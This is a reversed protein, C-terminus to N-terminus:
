EEWGFRWRPELYIKREPAASGSTTQGKELEYTARLLVDGKWHFRYALELEHKLDLRNVLTDLKVSYGLLVNQLVYKEFTVKSGKVLERWDTPLPIKEPTMEKGTEREMKVTDVLGTYGLINKILPTTLSTDLWRLIERRFLVMQEEQTLASTDVNAFVYKLAKEQTLLPYNKSYFKPQAEVLKSRDIVMVVTDPSMQKSEPDLVSTKTEAVGELYCINAIVEFIAKKIEFNHNLYSLNGRLTEIKGNVKIKDKDTTLKLFGNINTDVLENEYWVNDKARIELNFDLFNFIKNWTEDTEKDKPPYTFHTNSLEIIGDLIPKHKGKVMSLNVKIEGQSPAYVLRKFVTSRPIVLNELVISIGKANTSKLSFVYDKIKFYPFEDQTSLILEVKGDAEIKGQGIKASASRLFIDQGSFELETNLESIKKLGYKTEIEGNSISLNGEIQPSDTNGKIIIKGNIKGKSESIQPTINKLFSLNGEELSLTLIFSKLGFKDKGTLPLEGFGSLSYEGPSYVKLNDLFFTNKELRFSTTFTTFSLEYIKSKNLNFEGTILPQHYSGKALLKFNIEGQCPIKQNTLEVLDPLSFKESNLSFTFNNEEFMGQATLITKGAQTLNLSKLYVKPYQTFDIESTLNQFQKEASLFTLKRNTYQIYFQATRFNHQNIWFNDTNVKAELILEQATKIEGDLNLKGFLILNALHLNRIETLLIFKDKEIYSGDLFYIESEKIKTQFSDFLIREKENHLKLKTKELILNKSLLLKESEILGTLKLYDGKFVSLPDDINLKSKIEGSFPEQFSFSTELKLPSRFGDDQIASGKLLFKIGQWNGEQIKFKGELKPQSLKGTLSFFADFKGDPSYKNKGGSTIIKELRKLDIPKIELTGKIEEKGQPSFSVESEIQAFDDISSFFTLNKNAYHIKGQAKELNIQNIQIPSISFDADLEGSSFKHTGTIDLIGNLLTNSWSFNRAETHSVFKSINLQRDTSVSQRDTSVSQWNLQFSLNGEKQKIFCKNFNFYEKTYIFSSEVEDWFLKKWYGQNIKVNTSLTPKEKTGDYELFAYFKGQLEEESYDLFTSVLNLNSSLNGKFLPKNNQFILTGQFESVGSLHKKGPVVVALLLKEISIEEPKRKANLQFKYIQKKDKSRIQLKDNRYIIDLEFKDLEPLNKNITLHEIRIKSKIQPLNFGQRFDLSLNGNVKGENLDFALSDINLTKSGYNIEFSLNSLKVKQWNSPIVALSACEVKGNLSPSEYPPYIEGKLKLFSNGYKAQSINFICKEKNFNIEASIENLNLPLDTLEIKTKELSVKGRYDWQKPNQWNNSQVDVTFSVTGQVRRLRTSWESFTFPFSKGEMQFLINDRETYVRGNLKWEKSTIGDNGWFNFIIKKERFLLFGTINTINLGPLKNSVDETKLLFNKFHVQPITFIPLLNKKEIPTEGFSFRNTLFIEGQNFTLKKISQFPEKWHVLLNIINFRFSITRSKLLFRETSLLDYYITVNDLYFNTFFNTRLKTFNIRRGTSKEISSIFNKVPPFLEPSIGIYSFYLFISGALSFLLIFIISKKAL